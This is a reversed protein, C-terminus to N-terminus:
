RERFNVWMQERSRVWRGRSGTTRICYSVSKAIIPPHDTQGLIVFQPRHRSAACADTSSADNAQRVCDPIGVGDFAAGAFWLEPHRKARKRIRQVQNAHGVIPQANVQRSGNLKQLDKDSSGGHEPQEALWSALAEVREAASSTHTAAHANYGECLRRRIM